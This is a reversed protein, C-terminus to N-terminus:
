RREAALAAELAARAAHLRSKVTGEPINLAAAISAVPEHRLHHLVLITRHDPKLRDFARAVAESEDFADPDGDVVAARDHIPAIRVERVRGRRRLSARCANVLIRHLWADFAEVDRLRPLQRWASVFAEQTADRADAESGLIAWATRFLPDLREGVLAEFARVDGTRAREVLTPEAASASRRETAIVPEM